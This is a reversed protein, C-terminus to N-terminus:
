LLAVAKNFIPFPTTVREDKKAIHILQREMLVVSGGLLQRVMFCEGMSSTRAM